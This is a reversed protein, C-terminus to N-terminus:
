NVENNTNKTKPFVLKVSTGKGLQSEIVLSGKYTEMLKLAISLGIGYGGKKRNRSKEVRYFRDTVHLVDEKPIGIGFDQITLERHRYNVTVRKDDNSYKIANDILITLLQELHQEKMPLLTGDFLQLSFMFEPHTMEFDNVVKEIVNIPNIMSITADVTKESDLRSLELLDKVLKDMRDVERLSSALSKNLVERDDKGWRNLMMLNGNLVSLPTRLEHSADEVFQKQQNFSTELQDMLENFHIALESIEDQAPPIKVREKLGFKKIRTLSHSIAQIPRVIQKSLFLAGVLSLFVAGIGTLFMVLSFQELLGDFIEMNRVIEITGVYNMDVLPERYVLLRDDGSKVLEFQESQVLQSPVHLLEEESVAVVSKGDKDLIRITESKENISHIFSENEKIFQVSLKQNSYYNQITTMKMEISQEEYHIMWSNMVFYQLINYSVFLGIMLVTAWLVIKSKLKLKKMM